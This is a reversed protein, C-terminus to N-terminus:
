KHDDKGLDNLMKALEKSNLPKVDIENKLAIVYGQLVRKIKLADEKWLHEIKYPRDPSFIRSVIKISGFLPGVNATVNLIDEVRTSMLEATKFFSRTAITVKERDVTITDPFLTLPFVTTATALVEHSGEIAKKLEKKAEDHEITGAPQTDTNAGSSGNEAM